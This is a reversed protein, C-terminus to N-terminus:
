DDMQADSFDLFPAPPLYENPISDARKYHQVLIVNSAREDEFVGCLCM